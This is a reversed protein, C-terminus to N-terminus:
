WFKIGHLMVWKLKACKIPCKIGNQPVWYCPVQYNRLQQHTLCTQWHQFRDHTARSDSAKIDRRSRNEARKSNEFTFCQISGYATILQIWIQCIQPGCNLHFLNQLKKRYCSIPLVHGILMDLKVLYHLSMIWTLHFVNVDNQLLNIRFLTYWIKNSDGMNQLLVNQDRKQSVNYAQKHMELTCIFNKKTILVAFYSPKESCQDSKTAILSYPSSRISRPFAPKRVPM